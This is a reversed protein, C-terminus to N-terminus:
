GALPKVFALREGPAFGAARFFGLVDANDLAVETEVREIGLAALNLFLQSLMARGIGQRAYEPAVGVADIVAVPEPRGFDGYDARAMIYGCSIGERRAALSVRVGSDALAEELAHGIFERRERGTIHRDVRVLDELDAATLQRVEARDRALLAIQDTRPASWDNPDGRPEREPSAAPVENMGLPAERVGCELVLAPALRYDLADLFGLMGHERWGAGTRIEVAGRLAAEEELEAHLARGIGRNQEPAAVGIVELRVARRARGFEGELVRALVHGALAGASEIAFQIHLAPQRLAAALRREFYARRARGSLAADLAVVADLDSPALPRVKLERVRDM